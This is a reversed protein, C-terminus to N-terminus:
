EGAQHAVRALDEVVGPSPVDAPREGEDQRHAVDLRRAERARRGPDVQRAVDLRAPEVPQDRRGGRAPDQQGPVDDGGAHPRERRARRYSCRCRSMVASQARKESRRIRLQSDM